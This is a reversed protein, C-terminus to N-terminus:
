SSSYLGANPLAQSSASPVSSPLEKELIQEAPTKTSATPLAPATESPAGKPQKVPTFVIGAEELKRKARALELDIRDQRIHRLLNSVFVAESISKM